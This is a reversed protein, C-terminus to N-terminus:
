ALQSLVDMVLGWIREGRDDMYRDPCRVVEADTLIEFGDLIEASARAMLRRALEVQTDIEEVRAEILVADHVPALLRVDHSVLLACAHRLIEAGHAQAPFNRLTNPKVGDVVRARWGCYTQLERRLLGTDIVQQSWQYFPDYIKKLQRFLSQAQIMSLGTGAALSPVQMGYGMGLMAVKGIGRETKHTAKTAWEPVLGARHMLALYPEGSEAAKLLEPDESLCGAIAIEQVSYDLYALAHGETPKIL